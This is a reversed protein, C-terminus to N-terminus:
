QFVQYKHAIGLHHYLIKIVPLVKLVARAFLVSNFQKVSVGMVFFIDVSYFPANMVYILVFQAFLITQVNGKLYNLILILHEYGPLFMDYHWGAALNNLVKLEQVLKWKSPNNLLDEELILSGVSNVIEYNESSPSHASASSRNRIQFNCNLFYVIGFIM